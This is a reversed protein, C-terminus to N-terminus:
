AVRLGRFDCFRDDRHSVSAHVSANTTVRATRGHLHLRLKEFSTALRTAVYVQFLAHILSMELAM